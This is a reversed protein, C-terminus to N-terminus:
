LKRVLENMTALMGQLLNLKAAESSTIADTLKVSQEAMVSMAQQSAFKDTKKKGQAEFSSAEPPRMTEQVDEGEHLLSSLDKNPDEDTASGHVHKLVYARDHMYSDIISYYKYKSSRQSGSTGNVTYDSKYDDYLKKWKKRCADSNRNFDPCNDVLHTHLVGWNGAGLLLFCM